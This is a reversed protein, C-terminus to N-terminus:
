SEFSSRLRAAFKRSSHRPRPRKWQKLMLMRRPMRWCWSQSSSNRGRLCIGSTGTQYACKSALTSRRCTTGSVCPLPAMPATATVLSEVAKRSFCSHPWESDAWVSIILYAYLLTKPMPLLGPWSPQRLRSSSRMKSPIAMWLRWRKKSSRPWSARTTWSAIGSQLASACSQGRRNDHRKPKSALGTSTTRSSPASSTPLSRWCPNWHSKQRGRPPGSWGGAPAFSSALSAAWPGSTTTWIAKSRAGQLPVQAWWWTSALKSASKTWSGAISCEQSATFSTWLLASDRSQRAMGLVRKTKKQWWLLFCWLWRSSPHPRGRVEKSPSSWTWSCERQLIRTSCWRLQCLM